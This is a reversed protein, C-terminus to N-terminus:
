TKYFEQLAIWHGVSMKGHLTNTVQGRQLVYVVFNTNISKADNYYIIWDYMQMNNALSCSWFMDLLWLYMVGYFLGALM